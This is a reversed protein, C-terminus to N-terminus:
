NFFKLFVDAFPDQGVVTYYFLAGLWGHILGLVYLNKVKLYIYSYFLALIFTGIMLWYSPYHVLSFLIATILIIDLKNLKRSKLTNLNGTVLGIILFQQITGWIPYTILLPLVHWSVNITKQFFGIIVFM